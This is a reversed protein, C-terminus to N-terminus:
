HARAAQRAPLPPPGPSPRPPPAQDRSKSAAQLLSALARKTETVSHETGRTNQEMDIFLLVLEGGVLLILGTVIFGAGVIFSMLFTMGHITAGATGLAPIPGQVSLWVMGFPAAILVWGVLRVLPSIIQLSTYHRSPPGDAKAANKNWRMTAIIALIVVTGVTIVLMNATMDLM